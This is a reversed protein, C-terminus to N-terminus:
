TVYRSRSVVRSRRARAVMTSRMWKFRQSILEDGAFFLRFWLYPFSICISVCEEPLTSDYVQLSREHMTLVRFVTKFAVKPDPDIDIMYDQIPYAHRVYDENLQYFRFKLHCTEDVLESERVIRSRDESQLRSAFRNYSRCEDFLTIAAFNCKKRDDFAPGKLQLHVEFTAPKGDPTADSYVYRCTPPELARTMLRSSISGLAPHELQVAYSEYQCMQLVLGVSSFFVWQLFKM